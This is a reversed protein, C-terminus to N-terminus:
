IPEGGIWIPTARWDTETKLELHRMLALRSQKLGFFGLKTVDAQRRLRRHVGAPADVKVVAINNRILPEGDEQIAYPHPDILRVYKAARVYRGRRWQLTMPMLYM